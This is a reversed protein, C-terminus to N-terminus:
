KQPKNIELFKINRLRLWSLCTEKKEHKIREFVGNVKKYISCFAIYCEVHEKVLIYDYKEAELSAELEELLRHLAMVNDKLHKM